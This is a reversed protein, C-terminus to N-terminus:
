KPLLDKEYRRRAPVPNLGRARAVMSEEDEDGPLPVNVVVRHRESGTGFFGERDLDALAGVLARLLAGNVEEPREYPDGLDAFLAAAAAFHEDGFLDYPSDAGSWRLDDAGAGAGRGAYDASVRAPGESSCATPAPRHLVGAPWLGYSSFSEAPRARRPATWARRSAERVSGRIRESEPAGPRVTM